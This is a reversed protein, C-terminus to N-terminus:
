RLVGLPATPTSYYNVAFTFTGPVKSHKLRPAFIRRDAVQKLAATNMRGQFSPLVMFLVRRNAAIIPGAIGNAATKASFVVLISAIAATTVL